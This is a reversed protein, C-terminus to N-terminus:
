LREKALQVLRRRAKGEEFTLQQRSVGLLAARDDPPIKLYLNRLVERQRSTLAYWCLQVVDRQYESFTEQEEADGVCWSAGASEDLERCGESLSVTHREFKRLTDVPIKRKEAVAEIDGGARLERYASQAASTTSIRVAHAFSRALNAMAHRVEMHAFSSLMAPTYNPDAARRKAIYAFDYRMVAMHLALRGEQVIDDYCRQVGASVAIQQANRALYEDYHALLVAMAARDIKARRIHDQEVEITWESSIAAAVSV